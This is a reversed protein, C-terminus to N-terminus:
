APKLDSEAAVFQAITIGNEDSIEVEYNGDDYREIIYGVAGAPVDENLFKDTTIRVRSYLGLM